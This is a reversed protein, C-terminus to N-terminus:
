RTSSPGGRRRPLPTRASHAYVVSPVEIEQSIRPSRHRHNYKLGDVIRSGRAQPM